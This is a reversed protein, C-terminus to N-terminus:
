GGLIPPYQNPGTPTWTGSNWYYMQGANYDYIYAKGEVPNMFSGWVSAPTYSFYWHGDGLTGLGHWAGDGVFWSSLKTSGLTAWGGYFGEDYWQGTNYDYAFQMLDLPANIWIGFGGAYQYYWNDALVHWNGDGMFWPSLNPSGLTAWGGYLGEDYWQGTNYDYAFQMLGLSANTWVGFNGGGCQYYWNDALDHRNGDGVFWASVKTSGLTAWGRYFGEHYWQGTGYDYAFQMLGLSANMWVGFNGGGCQYYWNNALDHRNGDGVFWASLKTSGLTAWGGYLGEHYWQGTNYDYAFQMLGLSANMWVGFNGGGCQYYWNNGLDHWNGDGVFATSLGSNGLTQWGGFIGTDYWQRSTYSYGYQWLNLSTNRWFALGDAWDLRYSWNNGLNHTRSDGMFQASLGPAGLLNWKAQSDSVESNHWWQGVAFDFRFMERDLTANYYVGFGSSDLQFAWSYGYGNLYHRQGDGMFASSTGNESLQSWVGGTWPSNPDTPPNVIGNSVFWRGTGYIYMFQELNLATNKWYGLYVGVSDFSSPDFRYSWTSDLTHWNTDGVFTASLGSPGLPNVTNGWAWVSKHYWQGTDYNYGFMDWFTSGYFAWRSADLHYSWGTQADHSAGDGVFAASASIGTLIAEGGYRGQNWWQGTGYAYEYLDLSLDMSHWTGREGTLSRFSWTLGNSTTDLFQHWYGDFLLASSDLRGMYAFGDSASNSTEWHNDTYQKFYTHTSDQGYLVYTGYDMSWYAARVLTPAGGSALMMVCVFVATAVTRTKMARRRSLKGAARFGTSGERCPQDQSPTRVRERHGARRQM